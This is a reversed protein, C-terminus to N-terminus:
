QKNYELLSPLIFLTALLAMAIGITLLLGMSATGVHPSFALNGISGITTLASILIARSSSTALLSSRSKDTRYRHMMHIASDVGIGLLLPLAIVNAFNLPMGIAVSIAATLLAALLLPALVFLVDVRRPMLMFLLVTIVAIASLLAQQFASIVAKGAEVPIVPGGTIRDEVKQIQEVFRYQADNDYLNESPIVQVLYRDNHQWRRTFNEPLDQLEVAEASLGAELAQLRGPLSALLGQELLQLRETQQDPPLSRIFELYSDLVQRFNNYEPGGAAQNQALRQAIKTLSALRQESTIAVDGVSFFDFGLLLNMEDILALKDTQQDPIFDHLWIVEEVVDLQSLEQKISVADSTGSAIVTGTLPSEDPDKLLQKFTKVSENKQPQLNITNIDFTLQPLLLLAIITLVLALRMISGAHTVPIEHILSLWSGNSLSFAPQGSVPLYKLIAPMFTLTTILSIFMGSGSIWGLEAVGDYDTPVFAYFGIATTFACIILAAGISRSTELLANDHSAQNILLERFRLCYHIAFDVGLGIYLVAFAVSILNLEGVTLTAFTATLILGIILTTLTALVLWGSGLGFLLVFTVFVLAVVIATTNTQMVSSLEEHSMAVGGTFKLTATHRALLGSASAQQRLSTLLEGAPLMSSYDLRPQVLIYERYVPKDETDFLLKQWSLRYPSRERNAVLALEFQKLLPLLDIQEGDDIADLALLLMDGLGRLTQDQILQSLFAQNTALEDALDQLENKDLFLLGSQQFFPIQSHRYITKYQQKDQQLLTYLENAADNAQDPTGAELVILLNDTTHPFLTEYELDLQRWRLEPSLMDRTDTNMGLNNITYYLCCAALIPMGLLIVLSFRQTLKFWAQLLTDISNAM